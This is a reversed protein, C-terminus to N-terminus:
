GRLKYIVGDLSVPYLEGAPGEGFSSLNSVPFPERRPASVDRGDVTLSWVTGSCFDGYFYRGVAAPVLTGRYVYGGTVSCGDAHTYQAIPTTLKGPGLQGPQYSSRGENVRWGFNLLSTIGGAVYDIEEIKGQGVDGIYLDGNKRDFSFRWPNRLGLAVVEPPTRGLPDLRLLKGLLDNPNQAHNQPDGASGGDGMGVYLRGKTDFALMGGNHNAYPQRVFLLRRVSSKIARTGDSRYSVVYTDGNPKGTYDVYFRHNKAYGPDFALGLLGQENGDSDVLSRIDLFPEARRKGRILVRITGPQEVVYLRGPESRPATAFVPRTFGSAVQVIGLVSSRDRAALAIGAAVGILAVAVTFVVPRRV